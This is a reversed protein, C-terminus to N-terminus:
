FNSKLKLTLVGVKAGGAESWRTARRASATTRAWATSAAGGRATRRGRASM